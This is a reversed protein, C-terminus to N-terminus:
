VTESSLVSLKSLFEAKLNPVCRENLRCNVIGNFYRPDLLVNREFQIKAEMYSTEGKGKCFVLIERHFREPTETSLEGIIKNSSFYTPWDSSVLIKQLRTKGNKLKVRKKTPKLLFKKGVYLRNDCLDTIVYVFGFFGDVDSDIVDRGNYQWPKM